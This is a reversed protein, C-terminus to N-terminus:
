LVLFALIYNIHNVTCKTVIYYHLHCDHGGYFSRHRIGTQLFSVRPLQHTEVINARQTGESVRTNRKSYIQLM